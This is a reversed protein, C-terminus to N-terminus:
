QTRPRMGKKMHPTIEINIAPPPTSSDTGNGTGSPSPASQLITDGTEADRGIQMGETFTGITRDERHTDTTGLTAASVSLPCGLPLSASLLLIATLVSTPATHNRFVTRKTGM